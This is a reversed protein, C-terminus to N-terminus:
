YEQYKIGMKHETFETFTSFNVGYQFTQIGVQLHKLTEAQMM